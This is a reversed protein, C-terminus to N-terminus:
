QFQTTRLPSLNNLLSLYRVINPLAKTNYKESFLVFELLANCLWIFSVEEKLLSSFYFAEREKSIVEFCGPSSFFLFMNEEKVYSSM